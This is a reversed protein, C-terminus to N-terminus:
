VNEAWKRTKEPAVITAYMGMMEACRAAASMLVLLPLFGWRYGPGAGLMGTFRFWRPVDLMM